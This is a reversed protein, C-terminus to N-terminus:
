QGYGEAEAIEVTHEYAQNIAAYNCHKVMWHIVEIFQMILDWTEADHETTM